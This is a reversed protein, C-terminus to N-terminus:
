ATLNGIVYWEDTGVKVLTVGTYQNAIKLQGSKSRTTVGSTAVITTQGAGYQLVQIETGIPFAVSSNLPITLNNATAVNTEVIKSADALVLTYSATQRNFQNQYNIGGVVDLKATPSTTGIGFNGTASIWMPFTASTHHYMYAVGATTVGFAAKVSGSYSLLLRDNGTSSNIDLLGGPSSTGIGVNGSADIRMRETKATGNAFVFIGGTGFQSTFRSIGSSPFDVFLDANTNDTAHIATGTASVSVDLKYLPNTTGIGLNGALYNQATGDMYINWRNTGSPVQGRFGYNNTAGILTSNANFGVQTTVTSGAGFTGQDTQYHRLTGLTFTTAQTAAVSLFYNSSGTVDSQTTGGNFIGYAVTAGTINKEVRLNIGTLSTSGIGLSGSFYGTGNVWLKTTATAITTGIAVNGNGNELLACGGSAGIFRWRTLGNIFMGFNDDSDRYFLRAYESGASIQLTTEGSARYVDLTASPSTTGIGIATGTDYVLSNAISTSGSFKPVYNTTGTGSLPTYGLATAISKNEWLTSTSNYFIGDNNSPTQASVDHLEDLEYGNQIKVEIIGQTPHARVVIGVYVLHNPAYPKTSTYTGATTPSLYLQTGGTYASTDLDTLKGAVIVYGNNMNTIDTQVFGFTQASTSDGTALAKAITPLNGQTGNIYVITGKTLTAGSNNYVETILKDASLFTPFTAVSGDGRVYQATTGPLLFNGDIQVDTSSLLLPTDNGFGDTIRKKTGTITNNDTVKLLSDYTEAVIKGTLTTGM